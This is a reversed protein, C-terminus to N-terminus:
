SSVGPFSSLKGGLHEQAQGTRGRVEVGRVLIDGRDPKLEGRIMNVITTKGAGNPGLLALVEGGGLGLSVDRVAVNSGFYRSVHLLRLFDAESEEVREAEAIVDPHVASVEDAGPASAEANGTADEDEDGDEPGVRGGIRASTHPFISVEGRDLWLLLGLLVLIQLCLYLIPGGYAYIAGPYSIPQNNRCASLYVNLGVLIARFVNAIPFFLGFVVATADM